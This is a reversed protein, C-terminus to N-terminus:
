GPSVTPRAADDPPHVGSGPLGMQMGDMDQTMGGGVEVDPAAEPATVAGVLALGVTVIIAGATLGMRHTAASSRGRGTAAGAAVGGGVMVSEAILSITALPEAWNGVDDGALPLGTTRSLVLALVAAAGVAAAALYAARTPRWCLAAALLVATVELAIFLVGLYRVEVLHAGTVPIHAAAAVVAAASVPARWASRHVRLLAPIPAEAVPPAVHQTTM